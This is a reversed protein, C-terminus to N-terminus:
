LIKLLSKISDLDHISTVLMKRKLKKLKTKAKKIDKVNVLDSKTLLIVEDKELLEQDYKGLEGRITQYDKLVDQSDM